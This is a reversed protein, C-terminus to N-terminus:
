RKKRKRLNKNKESTLSPNVLGTYCKHNLHYLLIIRFYELFNHYGNLPQVLIILFLPILISFVIIIFINFEILFMSSLLTIMFIVLASIIILIDVIRFKGLILEGSKYNHPAYAKIHIIKNM